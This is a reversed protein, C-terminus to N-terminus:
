KIAPLEIKSIIDSTTNINYETAPIPNIINLYKGNRMHESLYLIITNGNFMYKPRTGTYRVHVEISSQSIKGKMVRNIKCRLIAKYANLYDSFLVIDYVNIVEAILVYMSRDVADRLADTDIQASDDSYLMNSIGILIIMSSIYKIATKM